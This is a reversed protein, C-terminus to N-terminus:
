RKFQEGIYGDLAKLFEERHERPVSAGAAIIHGGGQGGFRAAAERLAVSLNLGRAVQDNTGRSSVDLLGSGTDTVSIVPKEPDGLYRM